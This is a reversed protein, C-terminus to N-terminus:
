HVLEYFGIALRTRDTWGRRVTLTAAHRDQPELVTQAGWTSGAGGSFNEYVSREEGGASFAVRGGDAINLQGTAVVVPGQMERVESSYSRGGPDSEGVSALAWEHGEHELREPFTWGAAEVGGGLVEYGAVGLVVDADEVLRDRRDVLRLTVEVRDGPEIGMDELQETLVGGDTGLDYSPRPSCGIGIMPEDEVYLTALREVRTGAGPDVCVESIRLEGDEPVEMDLIVENEGRDGIVAGVLRDDLREARFTMGHRTVGGPREDSLAFVALAIRDDQDSGPQRLVLTSSSEPEVYHYDAFDGSPRVLTTGAGVDRLRVPRGEDSASSAWMVLRPEDSPSLKLRLPGESAEAELGRVYEYTYGTAVMEEPVEFGALEHPANAPGPDVPTLGPVVAVAVAAVAAVLGGGAVAARRRKVTRVRQHVAQARAPAGLDHVEDGHDHLVSRLEDTRM